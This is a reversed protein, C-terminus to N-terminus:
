PMIIPGFKILWLYYGAIGGVLGAVLFTLVIKKPLMKLVLLLVGLAIIGTALQISWVNWELYYTMEMEDGSYSMNEGNLIFSWIAMFLNAAQRLWFLTMFIFVWGILTVREKNIINKRYFLLLLLGITGTLMTQLPGGMTIWFSNRQYKEIVKEFEAKDPFDLGNQIEYSYKEYMGMWYADGVSDKYSMSQYNITAEYGLVKAVAYHGLEHTLTGIVTMLIFSILLGFFIKIDFNLYSM